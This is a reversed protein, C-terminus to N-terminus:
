SSARARPRRKPACIEKLREQAVAIQERRNDDDSAAHDSTVIVGAPTVSVTAASQSTRDIFRQVMERTTYSTGGVRFSELRIGGRVGRLVWRWITSTAPTRGTQEGIWQCAQPLTMPGEHKANDIRIV